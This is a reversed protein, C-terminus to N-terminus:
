EVPELCEAEEQTEEVVAINHESKIQDVDHQDEVSSVESEQAIDVLLHSETAVIESDEDVSSVIVQDEDIAVCDDISELCVDSEAISEIHSIEEPNENISAELAISELTDSVSELVVNGSESGDGAQEGSQTAEHPTDPDSDALVQSSDMQLHLQEALNEGVGDLDVLEELPPLDTLSTVNFYDLFQKTTVFLAPKGPTDRFGAAKVWERNLLTNIINSSVAVGRIDEIEGRTIPQRYVVLALTELLARSYRAPKKQWLKSIWPAYSQRSQFRYGSKVHSLEVGTNNYRQELTELAIMIDQKSVADSDSFLDMLKEVPLPEGASFIAAEIINILKNDDTSM